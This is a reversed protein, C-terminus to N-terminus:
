NAVQQEEWTDHFSRSSYEGHHRAFRRQIKPDDGRKKSLGMIRDYWQAETWPHVDENYAVVVKFLAKYTQDAVVMFKNLSYDLAIVGLISLQVMGTTIKKYDLVAVGVNYSLKYAEAAVTEASENGKYAEIM